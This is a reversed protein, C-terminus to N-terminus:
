ARGDAGEAVAAGGASLEAHHVHQGRVGLAIQVDALRNHPVPNLLEFEDPHLLPPGRQVLTAIEETCPTTPTRM